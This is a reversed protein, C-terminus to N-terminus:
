QQIEKISIKIETGGEPHNNIGFAMRNGYLIKLRMYANIVGVGRGKFDQTNDLWTNSNNFQNIEERIKFLVESNIGSGNDRIIISWGTDNKEGQITIFIPYTIGFLGHKLSNEVFPQLTMRPLIINSLNSDIDIWYKLRHEYRYKLLGLYSVITEKEDSVTVYDEGKEYTYKLLHILKRCIDTIKKEGINKALIAIVSITNNLFHPNMQSQLIKYYAKQIQSQTQLSEEVSKKLKQALTNFSNNLVAIETDSKSFTEEMEDFKLESYNFKEVKSKLERLPNYIHSAIIYAIGFSLLSAIIGLIIILKLIKMVPKLLNKEPISYIVLWDSYDSYKVAVLNNAKTYDDFLRTFVVDNKFNNKEENELYWELFFIIKKDADHISPFIIQKKQDIIFLNGSDINEIDCIDSIIKYKAQVEILGIPNHVSGVLRQLSFVIDKNVEEWEDPHPKTLIFQSDKNIELNQPKVKSLMYERLHESENNFRKSSFFLNNDSFVNVRDICAFPQSIAFLSETIMSYASLYILFNVTSYDYGSLYLLSQRVYTNALVGYSIQNLERIRHNLQESIRTTVNTMDTLTTKQIDQMLVFFVLM